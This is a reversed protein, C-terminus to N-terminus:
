VLDILRLAEFSVCQIGFFLRNYYIYINISGQM